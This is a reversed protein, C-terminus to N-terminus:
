TIFRKRIGLKDSIKKFKKFINHIFNSKVEENVVEVKPLVAKINGLMFNIQQAQVRDAYYFEFTYRENGILVEVHYYFM